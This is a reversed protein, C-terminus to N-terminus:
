VWSRQIFFIDAHLEQNAGTADFSMEITIAHCPVTRYEIEAGAVLTGFGMLNYEGSDDFSLDPNSGMASGYNNIYLSCFTNDDVSQNLLTFVESDMTVRFDMNKAANDTNDQLFSVGIVEVDAGTFVTYYTSTGIGSTKSYNTITFTKREILAPFVLSM